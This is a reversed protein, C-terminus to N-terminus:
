NTGKEAATGEGGEPPENRAAEGPSVHIKAAYYLGLATIPVWQVFHVVLTFGLAAEYDKTVGM